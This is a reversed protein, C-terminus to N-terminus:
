EDEELLDDDSFDYYIVYVGNDREIRKKEM